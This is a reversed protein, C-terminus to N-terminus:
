VIDPSIDKALPNHTFLLSNKLSFLSNQFIQYRIAMTNVAHIEMAGLNCLLYGTNDNILNSNYQPGRFYSQLAPSRSVARGMNPAVVCSSLSLESTVITVICQSM